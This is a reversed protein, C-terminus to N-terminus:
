TNGRARIAAAYSQMDPANSISELVKACVEREDARIAAEDLEQAPQAAPPAALAAELEDAAVGIEAATEDFGGHKQLEVVCKRLDKIHAIVVNVLHKPEQVPLPPQALPEPAVALMDRWVNKSRKEYKTGAGAELMESTPEIPVLKWGAQEPQVPLAQFLAVLEDSEVGTLRHWCTLRAALLGRVDAIPEQVPQALAEKIATIAQEHMAFCDIPEFERAYVKGKKPEVAVCLAELALKLAEDKTL